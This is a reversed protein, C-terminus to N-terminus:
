EPPRALRPPRQLRPLVTKYRPSRTFFEPARKLGHECTDKTMFITRAHFIFKEDTRSVPHDSERKRKGTSPLVEISLSWIDFESADYRVFM